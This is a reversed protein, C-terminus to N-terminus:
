HFESMLKLEVAKEKQAILSVGGASTTCKLLLVIAPCAALFAALAPAEVALRYKGIM